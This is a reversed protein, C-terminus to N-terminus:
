GRDQPRAGLGREGRLEGDAGITTAAMSRPSSEAPKCSASRTVAPRMSAVSGGARSAQM